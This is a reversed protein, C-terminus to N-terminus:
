LILKVMAITLDIRIINSHKAMELIEFQPTTQFHDSGRYELENDGTLILIPVNDKFACAVAMTTNLAGPSATTICVGIRGSSRAYGDAAHAAAQEHRTLVHRIKSTSLAKYLPMIQDGPIGFVDLIGESELIEVIRDAVNM